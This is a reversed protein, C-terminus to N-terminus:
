RNYCLYGRFYLQLPSERCLREYGKGEFLGNIGRDRSLKVKKPEPHSLLHVVQVWSSLPAMKSGGPIFRAKTAPLVLAARKIGSLNPPLVTGTEPPMLHEGSWDQVAVM